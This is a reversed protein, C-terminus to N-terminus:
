LNISIPAAPPSSICAGLIKKLVYSYETQLRRTEIKIAIPALILHMESEHMFSRRDCNEAKCFKAESLADDRVPLLEFKLRRTAKSAIDHM